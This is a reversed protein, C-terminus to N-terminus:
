IDKKNKDTEGRDIRKRAYYVKMILGAGICFALSAFFISFTNAFFFDLM